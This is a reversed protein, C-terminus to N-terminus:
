SARLRRRDRHAVGPQRAAMPRAPLHIGTDRPALCLGLGAALHDPDAAHPARVRSLASRQCVPPPAARDCAAGTGRCRDGPRALWRQPGFGIWKTWAAAASVNEANLLNLETTTETVTRYWAAIQGLNGQWGFAIAPLVLGVGIAALAVGVGAMGAALWLWPLLIAAYVKVFVGAGVLLGATRRAGVQAAM